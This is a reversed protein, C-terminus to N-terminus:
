AQARLVEAPELGAAKRSPLVTVTFCILLSVIAILSVQWVEIHMPIRNGVYVGSPLDIIEFNHIVWCTILGLAEGIVTGALGIVAGQWIFIKSISSDSAGMAKLIAIDKTKEIVMMVLSSIINFAAVLIILTLIVALGLKELRFIAFLNKNQDSWTSVVFPFKLVKQLKDKYQDPLSENEVRITLGSIENPMKFLKQAINIDVLALTEDYGM